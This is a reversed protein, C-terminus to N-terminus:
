TCPLLLRRVSGRDAEQASSQVRRVVDDLDDARCEADRITTEVVEAYAAARTADKEIQHYLRM